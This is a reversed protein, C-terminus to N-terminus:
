LYFNFKEAAFNLIIMYNVFFIPLKLEWKEM